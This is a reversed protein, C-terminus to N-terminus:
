HLFNAVHGADTIAAVEAHELSLREQCKLSSVFHYHYGFPITLYFFANLYNSHAGRGFTAQFPHKEKCM